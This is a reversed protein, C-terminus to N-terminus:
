RSDNPGGYNNLKQADFHKHFIRLFSNFSLPKSQSNLTERYCDYAKLLVVPNNDYVRSLLLKIHHYAREEESKIWPKNNPM